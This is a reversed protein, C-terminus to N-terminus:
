VVERESRLRERAIYTHLRDHVRLWQLGPTVTEYEGELEVLAVAAESVCDEREVCPPISFRERYERVTERARKLLSAKRMPEVGGKIYYVM